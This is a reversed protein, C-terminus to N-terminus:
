KESEAKDAEIIVDAMKITMVDVINVENGSWDDIPYSDALLEDRDILDGHGKPLTTGQKIATLIEKTIGKGSRQSDCFYLMNKIIEYTKNSIDIILKM